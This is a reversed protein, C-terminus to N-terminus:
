ARKCLRPCQRGAARPFWRRSSQAPPPVTGRDRRASRPPRPARRRRGRPPAVGFQVVVDVAERTREEGQADRLPLPDADPAGVAGFPGDQLVGRRLDPRDQDVDVGGVAAVLQLEHDLLVAHPHQDRRRRVPVAVVHPHRPLREGAHGSRRSSTNRGSAPRSPSSAPSGWLSASSVYASSSLRASATPCEPSFARMASSSGCSGMLRCYVEPVVPNGLPAVRVCWLM